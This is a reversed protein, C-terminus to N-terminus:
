VRRRSMWSAERATQIRKLAQDQLDRYPEVAQGITKFPEKATDSHPLLIGCPSDLMLKEIVPNTIEVLFPLGLPTEHRPQWRRSDIFNMIDHRTKHLSTGAPATTTPGTTKIWPQAWYLKVIRAEAM